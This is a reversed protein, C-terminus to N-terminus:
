LYISTFSLQKLQWWKYMFKTFPYSDKDFRCRYYFSGTWTLAHGSAPATTFTIVGNAISYASSSVLTGNNYISPPSQFNQILEATGPGASNQYYAVILFSTTTGDGTGFNQATVSNFDPDAFLFNDARGQVQNHLGVLAKLDSTAIVDNLIDYTLTFRVLPYAMNAIASVKGSTSKQVVSDWIYSRIIDLTLGNLTPYVLASM